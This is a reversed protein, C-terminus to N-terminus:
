GGAVPFAQFIGAAANAAGVALLEQNASVHQRSKAALAKAVAIGEMYAVLAIAVAAPLLAQIDTAALAPLSPAPLGRPVETLIKVGREGFSFAASVATMGAVVILAGPLKPTYRGLLVLAAVSVLSVLITLGHATTASRWVSGVIEPFSEARGVKLGLLDKVQSAAIVIAAASTFGSIVSHSMFNV